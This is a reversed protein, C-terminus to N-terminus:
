PSLDFTYLNSEEVQLPQHEEIVEDENLCDLQVFKTGSENKSPDDDERTVNKTEDFM